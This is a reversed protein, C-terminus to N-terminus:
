YTRLLLPYSRSFTADRGIPIVSAKRLSHLGSICLYRSLVSSSGLKEINGSFQKRPGWFSACLANICAIDLYLSQEDLSTLGSTCTGEIFPSQSVGCLSLGGKSVRQLQEQAGLESRVCKIQILFVLLHNKLPQFVMGRAAITVKCGRSKEIPFDLMDNGIDVPGKEVRFKM